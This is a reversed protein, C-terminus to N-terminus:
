LFSPALVGLFVIRNFVTVTSSRLQEEATGKSVSSKSRRLRAHERLMTINAEDLWSMVSVVTSDGLPIFHEMTYM